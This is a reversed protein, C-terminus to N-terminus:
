FIPGSRRFAFLKMFALWNGSLVLRTDNRWTGSRTEDSREIHQRPVTGFKFPHETQEGLPSFKQHFAYRRRFEIRFKRRRIGANETRDDHGVIEGNRNIKSNH